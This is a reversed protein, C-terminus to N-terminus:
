VNVNLIDYESYLKIIGIENNGATVKLPLEFYNSINCPLVLFSIINLDTQYNNNLYPYIRISYINDKIGYKTTIGPHSKLIFDKNFKSNCIFTGIYNYKM